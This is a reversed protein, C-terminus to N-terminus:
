MSDFQDAVRLLFVFMYYVGKFQLQMSVARLKTITGTLVNTHSPASLSISDQIFLGSCITM